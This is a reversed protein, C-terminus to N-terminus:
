QELIALWQAVNTQETQLALRHDGTVLFPRRGYSDGAGSYTRELQSSLYEARARLADHLRGLRTDTHDM